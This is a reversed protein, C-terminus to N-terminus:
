LSAMVGANLSFTNLRGSNPGLGGGGISQRFIPEVFATYRKGLVQEVRVGLDATAYANHPLGGNELLGKGYALTTSPAPTPNPNPQPNAPPYHVTNSAYNKSTAFNATIGAVAHASTKGVKVIRRTAKVPLSFVDADVNDIYYVSVGNFPDNQYVVNERKPQYNKQSYSLGAEVGWNGKRFGIALGGGFGNKKDDHAGDRLNNKEFTGFSAAYLRSPKVTNSLEIGPIIINSSAFLVPEITAAPLNPGVLFKVIGSQQYFNAPDLLSAQTRTSQPLNAATNIGDNESDSTFSDALGQVLSVLQQALNQVEPTTAQNPLTKLLVQKKSKLERSKAIPETFEKKVPAPNTVSGIIGLFGSLNLLLLLFIAAEALKTLRLRRVRVISDMRNSLLSWSEGDYPTQLRELSPRLQNDIAGPDPLADLRSELAAWSGPDFPVEIKDLASKLTSDFKQLDM